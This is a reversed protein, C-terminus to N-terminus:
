GGEIGSDAADLTYGGRDGDAETDGGQDGDDSADPAPEPETTEDSGAPEDSASNDEEPAPAETITYCDEGHTHEDLGCVLTEAYCEATHVHGQQPEEPEAAFASTPLMGVTMVLAVALALIRRAKRM